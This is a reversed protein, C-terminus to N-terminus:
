YSAPFKKVLQNVSLKELPVRSWPTLEKTLGSHKDHHFTKVTEPRKIVTLVLDGPRVREVRQGEFLGSRAQTHFEHGQWKNENFKYRFRARRMKTQM